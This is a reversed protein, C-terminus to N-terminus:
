NIASLAYLEVTHNLCWFKPRVLCDNTFYTFEGLRDIMLLFYILVFNTDMTIIIQTM